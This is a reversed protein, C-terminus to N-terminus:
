KRDGSLGTSRRLPFPIKGVAFDVQWMGAKLRETSANSNIPGLRGFVFALGFLRRLCTAAAPATVVYRGSRVPSHGIGTGSIGDSIMRLSVGETTVIHTM